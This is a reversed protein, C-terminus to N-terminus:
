LTGVNLPINQEWYQTTEIEELFRVLSQHRIRCQGVKVHPLKGARLLGYVYDKKVGLIESTEAVTYTKLEPHSEKTLM